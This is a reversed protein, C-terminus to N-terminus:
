KCLHSLFILLDRAILAVGQTKWKLLGINVMVAVVCLSKGRQTFRLANSLLNTIIQRIRLPDGQLAIPLDDAIDAVLQIASNKNSANM